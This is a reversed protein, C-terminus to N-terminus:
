SVITLRGTRLSYYMRDILLLEEDSLSNELFATGIVLRDNLTIQGSLKIKTYLDVIAMPLLCTSLFHVMKDPNHYNIIDFEPEYSM